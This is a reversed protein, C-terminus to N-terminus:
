KILKSEDEINLIEKMKTLDFSTDEPFWDPRATVMVDSKTRRAYAELTTRPGGLLLIGEAKSKAAKLILHAAEDAYVRSTYHNEFVKPWPFPRPGFSPRLILSGPVMQVACEGGIKSWSLSTPGFIPDTEKHPGKGLYVYDTSVYILKVRAELCAIAVNGTGIINLELGAKPNRSVADGSAAALHLVVDPKYKEIAKEISDLKTIDLEKHSPAIIEPDLKLIEKGLNGSGGTMLIKM